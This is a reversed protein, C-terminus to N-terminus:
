SSRGPASLLFSPLLKDERLEALLPHDALKRKGARVELRGVKRLLAQTSARVM